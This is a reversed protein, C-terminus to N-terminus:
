TVAHLAPLVKEGFLRVSAEAQEIPMGGFRFIFVFEQADTMEQARLVKEICQEPTGLAHAMRTTEYLADPDIQSHARSKAYDEYGKIGEFREPHNLEYHRGSEASHFDSAMRVGDAEASPGEACYAYSVVRPRDPPLGRDARIKNFGDAFGGIVEPTQASVFLMNIDLEAVVRMSSPSNFAGSIDDVLRPSVPRPRVSTEPIQFYKGEFSFREDTLARKIVQVAETFRERSENMDSRFAEFERRGTGRGVGITLRRGGLLNDLLALEGAIQFPDHWPLVIVMTGFDLRQTRGAFYSLVLLPNPVMCYPTVHHEPSWLSDFGLPEALDGLRLVDAWIQSDPTAPPRSYDAAEVREWDETNLAMLAMGVRM